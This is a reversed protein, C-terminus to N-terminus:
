GGADAAPPPPDGADRRRVYARHAAPTPERRALRCEALGAVAKLRARMLKHLCAPVHDAHHRHLAVCERCRGHWECAQEPCTCALVAPDTALRRNALVLQYYEEPSRM